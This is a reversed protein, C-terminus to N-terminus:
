LYRDRFTVKTDFAGDPYTILTNYGKHLPFFKGGFNKLGERNEGNILIEDYEHDFTITDGEYIIYPTQDVTEEYLESAKISLIRPANANSTDAYKGIHIQVYKLKGMLDDDVIVSEKISKVHKNRTNIRTIYFTMKNGERTFRLMGFWMDNRYKYNRSSIVYNEFKGQYEGFRAEGKKENGNKDNDWIAMKGLNNMNEDFLYMEIRVTQESRKTEMRLMMEVEFDQIPEIERLLAPGHWNDGSGYSPVTIGDNDTNLEGTVKGGDVVTGSETWEDLTQGREEFLLERTDVVEEDVETPVGIINYASDEDTGNAIMAFTAKEKATMEFIPESIATGKSEVVFSDEDFTEEYSEKGRKYPNGCTITISAQYIRGNEMSDEASTLRGRYVRNPEDDFEIPVEEGRTSFIENLRELKKRLDEFNEGKLTFDVELIREKYRSFSPYVGDMQTATIGEAEVDMVGRGTVNNVLFYSEGYEDSGFEEYLDVNNFTM